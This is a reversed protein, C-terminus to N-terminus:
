PTGRARQILMQVRQREPHNPNAALMKEWAAVAGRSDRLGELKVIGMNMLAPAFNPQASLVREYEALAQDAFGSYWLATGRDTRVNADTPRLELARGYYDIAEAYVHHDYYLNGLQVLAEFNKPNAQVAMKLPAALPEVLQADHLPSNGGQPLSGGPTPVAPGSVAGASTVMPASSGRFLFGLAFGAFLCVLALM